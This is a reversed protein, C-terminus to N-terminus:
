KWPCDSNKMIISIQRVGTLDKYSHAYASSMRGREKQNKIFKKSGITFKEINQDVFHGKLRIYLRQNDGKFTSDPSAQIHFDVNDRKLDEPAYGIENILQRFFEIREM